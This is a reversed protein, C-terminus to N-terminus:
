VYLCRISKDKQWEGQAKQMALSMQDVLLEDKKSCNCKKCLPQINEKNSKGGKSIPSIHDIQLEKFSFKHGCMQCRYDLFHCLWKWYSEDISYRGFRIDYNAMYEKRELKNNYKNIAKKRAEKKEEPTMGMGKNWSIQGKKFETKPSLHKDKMKEKMKRITKEGRKKGLWYGKFNNKLWLYYCKRSHFKREKRGQFNIGCNKCKKINRPNKDWPIVQSIPVKQINM